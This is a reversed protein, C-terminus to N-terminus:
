TALERANMTVHGLQLPTKSLNEHVVERWVAQEDDKDVKWFAVARAGSERADRGALELNFDGDRGLVEAVAVRPQDRADLCAHCESYRHKGDRYIKAFSSL